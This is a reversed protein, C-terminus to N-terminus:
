NERYFRMLIGEIDKISKKTWDLRKELIEHPKLRWDLNNNRLATTLCQLVIAASVSINLSETFGVMPITLFGDANKLVEDSLGDRETGFFLATKQSLKFDHLTMGEHHPTTAIIQYGDKKLTELADATSNYRHVDVWQQAGMAINKDLQKGYKDEIVHIEQVGFSECSRIVASTNHMQYVDETAVTIFKTRQELISIFREKREESIFNELYSLLIQGEM